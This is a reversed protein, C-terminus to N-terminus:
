GRFTPSSSPTSSSPCSWTLRPEDERTEALAEFAGRLAADASAGLPCHYAQVQEMSRRRYDIGVDVSLVDLESQLLDIAPLMRDRHLVCALM